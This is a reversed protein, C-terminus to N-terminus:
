EENCYCGDCFTCTMCGDCRQSRLCGCVPNFQSSPDPEREIACPVVLSALCWDMDKCGRPCRFAPIPETVVPGTM